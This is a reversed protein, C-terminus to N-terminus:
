NIVISQSFLRHTKLLIGGTNICTVVTSHSTIMTGSGTEIEALGKASAEEVFDEADVDANATFSLLALLLVAFGGRIMKLSSM